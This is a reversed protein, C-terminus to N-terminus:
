DRRSGTFSCQKAPQTTTTTTPTHLDSQTIDVFPLLIDKDCLAKFHGTTMNKSLSIPNDSVNAFKQLVHCNNVSTLISSALLGAGSVINNTAHVFGSVNNPLPEGRIRACVVIESMPPVVIDEDLQIIRNSNVSLSSKGQKFSVHVENKELLDLGLIFNISLNEVLYFYAVTDVNNVLVNVCIKGVIPLVSDNAIMIAKKDCSMAKSKLKLTPFRTFVDSSCCSIDSGSDILVNIKESAIECLIYNKILEVNASLHPMTEIVSPIQSLIDNV